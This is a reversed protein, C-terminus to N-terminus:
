SLQTLTSVLAARLGLTYQTLILLCCILTLRSYSTNHREAPYSPDLPVYAGGARTIAHLGIVLDFSRELGLGVHTETNVGKDRLWNALQNVRVDFEHYTLTQGQM